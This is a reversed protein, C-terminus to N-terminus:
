INSSEATHLIAEDVLFPAGISRTGLHAHNRASTIDHATADVNQHRRTPCFITRHVACKYLSPIAFQSNFAVMVQM